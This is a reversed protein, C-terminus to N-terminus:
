GAVDAGSILLFNRTFVCMCVCGVFWVCHGSWYMLIVYVFGCMAEDQIKFSRLMKIGFYLVYRPTFFQGMKYCNM